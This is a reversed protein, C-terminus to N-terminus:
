TLTVMGCRELLIYYVPIYRIYNLAFLKLLRTLIGRMCPIRVHNRLGTCCVKGHLDYLM